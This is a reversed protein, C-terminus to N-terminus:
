RCLGPADTASYCKLQLFKKLAVDDLYGSCWVMFISSYDKSWPFTQMSSQVISGCNKKTNMVDKAKKIAIPCQDFLDVHKYSKMVSSSAVRADGGAVDLARVNGKLDIEGLFNDLVDVCKDHCLEM